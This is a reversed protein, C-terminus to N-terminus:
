IVTFISVLGISTTTKLHRLIKGVPVRHFRANNVECLCFWFESRERVTAVARIAGLIQWPWSGVSRECNEWNWGFRNVKPPTIASRTRCPRETPGCLIELIRGFAKSRIIFICAVTCKCLSQCLGSLYTTINPIKGRASNFPWDPALPIVM